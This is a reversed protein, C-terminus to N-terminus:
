IDWTSAEKLNEDYNLSNTLDMLKSTRSIQKFTEWYVKTEYEIYFDSNFDIEDLYQILEELKIHFIKVRLIGNGNIYDRYNILKHEFKEESYNIKLLTGNGYNDNPIKIEFGDIDKFSDLVNSVVDIIKQSSNKDIIEILLSIEIEIFNIKLFSLGYHFSVNYDKVGTINQKLLKKNIQICKKHIM